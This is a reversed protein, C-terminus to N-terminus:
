ANRWHPKRGQHYANLGDLPDRHAVLADALTATHPATTERNPVSTTHALFALATRTAIPSRAVIDAAMERALDLAKGQPATRTILGATLAETADIRRGTLIMDHALARGVLDPLRLLITTSPPLGLATDPVAFTATEDAVCLHCSLALALGDGDARGNIAAIVPKAPTADLPSADFGNHPQLMLQLPSRIGRLDAGLSFAESGAGTLIAVRLDDDHAFATLIEGLERYTDGTLTNDDDARDITVELVHGSTAISVTGYEDRLTPVGQALATDMAERTLAVLNGTDGGRVFVRRGVPQEAETLVATTAADLPTALFRRGDDLRGVVTARAAGGSGYRVVFSEVTGWGDPRYALPVGAADNLEAQLSKTSRVRWPVPTTSYVGASHKSLVGGNAAVLGFEGPRDRLRAVTEAIAHTSYNNGPGGFFPLGGTVTLGRPDAPDLGLGDCLNFVAIPFCSYLDLTALEDLGVAAMDLAHRVAAVAAPSRDLEPRVLLEREALDAYGHLYVRRSQPIGLRDATETSTMLVAAAQNVQDRAVLFRPYIDTILRNREDVRVLEGADREIPAAAHPNGAAVASFRGFLEGMARAYDARSDGRRGRRANELMAYSVAPEVLHHRVAYFPTMGEIAYGRDELPGDDHETFDPREAPPLGALQRVTSITEAGVLVAAGCRGEAIEGCLENLLQQPSQGGTPGLIARAPDAGIRRAIARPVNDPAGLAATAYPSSCDFARVAAVIDLAAALAAPDATTDTLAARVADAALDAASRAQYEDDGPRESAQGVGVLVPTSPSVPVSEPSNDSM